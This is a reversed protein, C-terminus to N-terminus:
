CGEPKEKQRFSFGLIKLGQPEMYIHANMYTHKHMISIIIYFCM